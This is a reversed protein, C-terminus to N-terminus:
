LLRNETEWNAKFHVKFELSKLWEIKWRDNQLSTSLNRRRWICICLPYLSYVEVKWRQGEATREEWVRAYIRTLYYKHKSHLENTAPLLLRVSLCFSLCVSLSLARCVCLSLCGSAARVCVWVHSPCLCQIHRHQILRVKILVWQSRTGRGRRGCRNNHTHTHSSASKHSM